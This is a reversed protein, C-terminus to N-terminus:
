TIQLYKLINAAEQISSNLSNYKYVLTKLNAALSQAFPRNQVLKFISAAFLEPTDAILLHINHVVSLGEAGLTTSVLPIGCAGAELIKFRTGSEFRLPVIAVDVFCLYPLVSPVMGLVTIGPDNIDALTEKAGKGIIYFHITPLQRRLLPMVEKIVWRAADAIPSQPAFSGALYICPHKLGIVPPPIEKYSEIDIVNSFLHVQESHKALGRYYQADVESVATTIDALATGWREQEQKKRGSIEIAQREHSNKAYPLGRMVFRSWVSDTDLIVKFDSHAKIYKLLDYSINGYGLWIIDAKVARARNLVFKFEPKSECPQPWLIKDIFLKSIYNIALRSFNFFRNLKLTTCIQFTQCYQRYVSLAAQGGMQRLPVRSVIHLESLRSLTKISNEIRLYPGGAPPHKIVPSTFLIRPKRNM